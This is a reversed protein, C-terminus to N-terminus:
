ASEAKAAEQRKREVDSFRSAAWNLIREQEPWELEDLVTACIKLADLEPTEGGTLLEFRRYTPEQKDTM